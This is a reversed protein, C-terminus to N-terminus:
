FYAVAFILLFITTGAQGQRGRVPPAGAAVRSSPFCTLFSLIKSPKILVVHKERGKGGGGIELRESSRAGRHCVPSPSLDDRPHATERRAPPEPCPWPQHSARGTGGLSSRIRAWGVCGLIPSQEGVPVGWSGRASSQTGLWPTGILAGIPKPWGRTLCLLWAPERHLGWEWLEGVDAFM